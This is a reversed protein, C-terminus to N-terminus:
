ELNMLIEQVANKREFARLASIYGFDRAEIISARTIQCSPRMDSGRAVGRASGMAEGGEEAGGWQDRAGRGSARLRRRQLRLLRRGCGAGFDRERRMAMACIITGRGQRGTGTRSALGTYSSRRKGRRQILPRLRSLKQYCMCWMAPLLPSEGREPAGTCQRRLGGCQSPCVFPAWILLCWAGAGKRCYLLLVSLLAQAMDGAHSSSEALLCGEVSPRCAGAVEASARVGAWM